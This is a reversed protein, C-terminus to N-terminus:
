FVLGGGRCAEALAKVRGHYPYGGRDFVVKKVGREKCKEALLKGVFEAAKVNDGYSMQKKFEASLSSCSLIIKGDVDDIVQAYIHKLSKFVCLRERGSVGSIAKRVRRHRKIRAEKRDM